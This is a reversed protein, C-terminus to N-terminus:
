KEMAKLKGPLERYLQDMDPCSDLLKVEVHDLRELDKESLTLQVKRTAVPVITGPTGFFPAFAFSAVKLTEKKIFTGNLAPEDSTYIARNMASPSRTSAEHFRLCLNAAVCKADTGYGCIFRKAAIRKNKSDYLTVEAVPVLRFYADATLMLKAPVEYMQWQTSQYDNFAETNVSVYTKGDDLKPLKNIDFELSDGAKKAEVMFSRSQMAAKELVPTIKEMFAAYKEEDVKCTFDFTVMCDNGGEDWCDDWGKGKVVQPEGVEVDMLSYPFKEDRLIGAFQTAADGQSKGTAQKDQVLKAGDIKKSGKAASSKKADVAETEDTATEADEGAVDVDEETVDAEEEVIVETDEAAEKAETKIVKEGAQTEGTAKSTDCGTLVLLAVLLMAFMSFKYM